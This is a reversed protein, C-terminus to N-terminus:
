FLRYSFSFTQDIFVWKEGINKRKCTINNEVRRKIQDNLHSAIKVRCRNIM